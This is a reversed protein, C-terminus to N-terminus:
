RWMSLDRVEFVETYIESANYFLRTTEYVRRYREGCAKNLEEFSLALCRREYKTLKVLEARLTSETKQEGEFEPFAMSNLNSEARDRELSGYDNFMRCITSIHTCCDQAIYKIESNGLYDGGDSMLCILFAYAYQSSLHDSAIGRVWKLYSSPPTAYVKQNKQRRLKISDECQQIHALLYSKLELQLITKENTSASQIRPYTLVYKLFGELRHWIERDYEGSQELGNMAGVSQPRVSGSEFGAFLKNFNKRLQAITFLDGRAVINEFFEDVQYNVMSILMMDFLTQAGAHVNELGNPGTWSFPLYEFYKDREKGERDFVTFNMKELDPLFLYGEILWAKIKWTDIGAFMPLKTYFKTFTSLKKSPINVLSSVRSGLLFQPISANFAALVYSHCVNQVGYSVKGAWIYDKPTLPTNDLANISRLYKRGRSVALEIQAAVPRVFPLSDVNSLTIIAYATEERSGLAGWSGDENQQQLTRSLIQFLVIMIKASLLKVPVDLQTSEYLHLVRVLSQAALMAPYYPSM